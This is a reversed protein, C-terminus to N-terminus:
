ADDLTVIAMGHADRQFDRVTFGGGRVQVADGRHLGVRELDAIRAELFPGSIIVTVDQTSSPESDREFLAEFSGRASQVSVSGLARLGVLM